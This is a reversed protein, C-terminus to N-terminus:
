NLRAGSPLTCHDVPAYLVQQLEAELLTPETFPHAEASDQEVLASMPAVSRPAEELAQRETPDIRQWGGAQDTESELAAQNAWLWCALAGYMLLVAGVGIIQHEVASLWMHTDLLLLGMMLPVLLSLQWWRPHRKQTSM